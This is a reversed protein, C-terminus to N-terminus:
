IEVYVTYGPGVIIVHMPLQISVLASTFILSPCGDTQCQNM